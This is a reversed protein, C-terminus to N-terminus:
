KSKIKLQIISPKNLLILRLLFIDFNCAIKFHLSYSQIEFQERAKKNIHPSKILTIRSNKRPLYLISYNIRLFSFIKKLYFCYIKLLNKNLSKLNLHMM